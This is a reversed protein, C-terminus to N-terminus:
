LTCSRALLSMSSHFNIALSLCLWIGYLKLAAPGWILPKSVDFHFVFFVTDRLHATIACM